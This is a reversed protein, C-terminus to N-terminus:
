VSAGNRLMALARCRVREVRGDWAQGWTRPLEIVRGLVTKTIHKAYTRFTKQERRREDCVAAIVNAPGRQMIAALMIDTPGHGPRPRETGLARALVRMAGSVGNNVASDLVVYGVGRPLEDFRIMDAFRARYIAIAENRPMAKLDAFSPADKGQKARWDRFVSYTIGMNVAGGGETPRTAFGGEENLIYIMAQEFARSPADAQVPTGPM